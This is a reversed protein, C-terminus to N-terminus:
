WLNKPPRLAVNPAHERDNEQEGYAGGGASLEALGVSELLICSQVHECHLRSVFDFLGGEQLPLFRPDVRQRRNSDATVSPSPRGEM